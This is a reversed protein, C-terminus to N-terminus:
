VDQKLPLGNADTNIQGTLIQVGEVIAWIQSVVALMGCSLLTFLLQTVAKETYGLYFNHVGYAGLFFALLAAAIKSKQNPAANYAHYNQNGLNFGCSACTQYYPGTARACNPCFRYGEGVGTGCSRCFADNSYLPASCNRCYM